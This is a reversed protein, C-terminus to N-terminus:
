VLIPVYPPKYIRSPLPSTLGRPLWVPQRQENKVSTDENGPNQRHNQKQGTSIQSKKSGHFSIRQHSRTTGPCRRDYRRGM